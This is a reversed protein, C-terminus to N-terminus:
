FYQFSIASTNEIDTAPETHTEIVEAEAENEVKEIEMVSTPLQFILYIIILGFLLLILQIQTAKM